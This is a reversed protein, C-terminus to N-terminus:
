VFLVCGNTLTVRQWYGDGEIPALAGGVTSHRIGGIPFTLRSARGVTVTSHLHKNLFNHEFISKIENGEEGGAQEQGLCLIQGDGAEGAPALCTTQRIFAVVITHVLGTGQHTRWKRERCGPSGSVIDAQTFHLLHPTSGKELFFIDPPRM